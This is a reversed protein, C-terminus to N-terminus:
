PSWKAVGAKRCAKQVAHCVAEPNFWEGPLRVPKAKKRSTQSPQVKSKRKARMAAYREERQRRPSFLPEDPGPVKAGLHAVIVAQAAAGMVVTRHKGRHANKHATMAYVWLPASRDIQGLTMRCVESPRMGTLRMMEVVARAHPPLHPLTAAVHEPNAPLRPATERADTKGARLPAVTKLAQYVAAPVLEESGMWKFARVVRNAQKNCFRRSWGRRVFSERVAKLALPGFDLAPARGYLERVAKVADKIQRLESADYYGTAYRVYALLVEAVTPGGDVVSMKPAPSVALELQLRAFAEKSEPSDFAGPLLKERRDGGADTWVMRGKGSAHKLYRPLSKRPRPM